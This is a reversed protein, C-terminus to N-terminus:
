GTKDGSPVLHVHDRGSALAIPFSELAVLALFGALLKDVISTLLNSSFVSFIRAHTLQELHHTMSDAGHGTGDGFILVIIPTAIVTCGVGAVINLAFYRPLGNGMRFRRVGYGWLLAGAINVLMFPLAIWGQTASMGLNTAVAVSVGWWPGLVISALATGIMDLFLPLKVLYVVGAGLLNIALCVALTTALRRRSVPERLGKPRAPVGAVSRPLGASESVRPAPVSGAGVRALQCATRWRSVEAEDGGLARVVDLVLDTDLRRRGLRFADYVTTRGVRAELASLGRRERLVVIRRAIEAYSPHGASERLAVLETAIQDLTGSAVHEESVGM